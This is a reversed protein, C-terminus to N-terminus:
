FSLYFSGHGKEPAMAGQATLNLVEIMFSHFM